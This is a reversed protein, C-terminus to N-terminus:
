LSAIVKEYADNITAMKAECEEKRDANQQMDPHHILALAHYAKQIEQKSAGVSVGLIDYYQQILSSPTSSVYEKKTEEDYYQSYDDFETRLPSYYRIFYDYSRKNIKLRSMTNLIYNWEDNKIGDVEAALKFMLRVLSCRFPLDKKKIIIDYDIERNPDVLRSKRIIKNSFDQAEMETVLNSKKTAYLKRHFNQLLTKTNKNCHGMKLLIALIFDCHENANSVGKNAWFTYGIILSGIIITAIIGALDFSPTSHIYSLLIYYNM